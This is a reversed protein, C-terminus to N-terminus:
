KEREGEHEGKEGHECMCGVLSVSMLAVFMLSKKM